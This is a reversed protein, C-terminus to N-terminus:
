CIKSEGIIDDTAILYIELARSVNDVHIRTLKKLLYFILLRPVLIYFIVVEFVLYIEGYCNFNRYFGVPVFVSLIRVKLNPLSINFSVAYFNIRGVAVYCHIWPSLLINELSPISNPFFINSQAVRIIIFYFFFFFEDCLPFSPYYFFFYRSVCLFISFCKTRTLLRRAVAALWGRRMLDFNTHLPLFYRIRFPFSIFNIKM